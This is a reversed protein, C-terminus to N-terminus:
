LQTEDILQLLRILKIISQVVPAIKPINRLLGVIICGWIYLTFFYVYLIVTAQVVLLNKKLKKHPTQLGFSSHTVNLSLISFYRRNSVEEKLLCCIFQCSRRSVLENAYLRDQIHKLSITKLCMIIITTTTMKNDLKTIRTCWFTM